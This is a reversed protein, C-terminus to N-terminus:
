STLNDVIWDLANCGVRWLFYARSAVRILRSLRDPKAPSVERVQRSEEPGVWLCVRYATPRRSGVFVIRVRGIVLRGGVLDASILLQVVM